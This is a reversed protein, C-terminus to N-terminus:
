HLPPPENEVLTKLIQLNKEVRKYCLSLAQFGVVVGKTDEHDALSKIQELLKFLNEIESDTCYSPAKTIVHDLFVQLHLNLNKSAELVNNYLETSM